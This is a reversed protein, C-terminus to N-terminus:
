NNNFFNFIKIYFQNILLNKTYVQIKLYIIIKIVIRFNYKLNFNQHFNHFFM